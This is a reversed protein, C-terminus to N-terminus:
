REKKRRTVRVQGTRMQVQITTPPVIYVQSPDFM